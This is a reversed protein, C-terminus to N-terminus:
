NENIIREAEEFTKSPGSFMISQDGYQSNIAQISGWIQTYDDAILVTGGISRLFGDKMIMGSAFIPERKWKSKLSSIILNLSGPESSQINYKKGEIEITGIFKDQRTLSRYCTGKLTMSVTKLLIGKDQSVLCGQFTKEIEKPWTYTFYAVLLVGILLIVTKNKTM